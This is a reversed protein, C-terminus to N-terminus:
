LLIKVMCHRPKGGYMPRTFQQTFGAAELNKISVQNNPHVTSYLYRCGYERARIERLEHFYRQLGRGRAKEHVVTADLTAVYILDQEQM